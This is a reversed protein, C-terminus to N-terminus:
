ASWYLPGVPPVTGASAGLAAVVVRRATGDTTSWNLALGTPIMGALAFEGTIGGDATRTTYDLYHATGLAATSADDNSAVVVGHSALNSVVGGQQPATAVGMSHLLGAVYGTATSHDGSFMAWSPRFGATVGQSGAAPPQTLSLVTAQFTGALLLAACKYANSADVVDYTLTFGDADWSVFDASVAVGSANGSACLLHCHDTLLARGTSSTTQGGQIRGGVACRASTSVAAGYGFGNGTGVAGQLPLTATTGFDFFMGFTPKFGAGTVSKSGTATPDTFTVITAQTIDTGGLAWWITPAPFVPPAYSAQTANWNITFGDTDFSSVSFSESKKQNNIDWWTALEATSVYMAASTPSQAHDDELCNHTFQHITGSADRCAVGYALHPGGSNQPSIGIGGIGGGAQIIGVVWPKFGLGVISQNGTNIPGEWVGSATLFTGVAATFTTPCLVVASHLWHFSTTGGTTWGLGILPGANAGYSMGSQIGNSTVVAGASTQSADGGSIALTGVDVCVMDVAMEGSSMTITPHRSDSAVSGVVETASAAANPRSRTDNGYIQSQNVGAFTAVWLIANAATTWTATVTQSGSTPATAVWMQMIGNQTGSIGLWNSLTGPIQAWGSGGAGSIAVSTPQSGTSFLLLGAVIVRSTGSGVTLTATVTTAATASGSAANDFTVAM